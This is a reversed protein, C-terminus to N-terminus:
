LQSMLKLASTSMTEEEEIVILYINSRPDNAYHDRLYMTTKKAANEHVVVYINFIGNIELYKIQHAIIPRDALPLCTM